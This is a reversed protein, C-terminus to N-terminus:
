FALKNSLCTSNIRGSIDPTENCSMLFETDDFTAQMYIFSMLVKRVNSM